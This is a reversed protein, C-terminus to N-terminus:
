GPTNNHCFHVSFNVGRVSTEMKMCNSYVLIGAYWYVQTGTYMYVLIVAYWYVQIGIYRYVEM